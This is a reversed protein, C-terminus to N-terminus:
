SRRALEEVRGRVESVGQEAADRAQAALREARKRARRGRVKAEAAAKAARKRARRSQRGAVEVATAARARRRERRSLKAEGKARTLRKAAQLAQLEADVARKEAVVVRDDAESRARRERDLAAAADRHAAQARRLQEKKSRFSVLGLTAISATKRVLGM